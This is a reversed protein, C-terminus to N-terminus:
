NGEAEVGYSDGSIAARELASIMQDYSLTFRQESKKDHQALHDRLSSNGQSLKKNFMQNCDDRKCIYWDPIITGDSKSLAFIGRNWVDSPKGRPKHKVHTLLGSAYGNLLISKTYGGSIDARQKLVPPTEPTRAENEQQQDKQDHLAIPPQVNEENM